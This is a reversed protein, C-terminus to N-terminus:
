SYLKKLFGVGKKEALYWVGVSFLMTVGATLGFALLSHLEIGKKELPYLICEYALLHSFYVLSSWIRFRRCSPTEEGSIRGVLCFLFYNCPLLFLYADYGLIWNMKVLFLIELGMLALSLFFGFLSATFSPLTKRQALFVGTSVFVFGVMLGNRTGGFIGNLVNLVNRVGESEFFSAGMGYWSQGFLGILYLVTGVALVCPMGIRRKKVVWLLLLATLTGHLYWLHGYSGSLIFKKVWVKLAFSLGVGEELSRVLSVPFYIGSWLLYLKGIKKLAHLIRAESLVGDRCLFFGASTFFFPVALRALYHVLGFHLTWHVSTLPSVHIAIVFFALIFKFRDIAPYSQKGTM